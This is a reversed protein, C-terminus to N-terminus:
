KGRLLVEVCVGSGYRTSLSPQGEAGWVADVGMGDLDESEKSTVKTLTTRRDVCDDM